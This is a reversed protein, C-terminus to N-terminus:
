VDSKLVCEFFEVAGFEFPSWNWSCAGPEMAKFRRTGGDPVVLVAGFTALLHTVFFLCQGEDNAM